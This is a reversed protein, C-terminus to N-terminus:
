ALLGVRPDDAARRAPHGATGARRRAIRALLRDRRRYLQELRAEAEALLGAHTQDGAPVVLQLEALRRLRPLSEETTTIAIDIARLAVMPDGPGRNSSM